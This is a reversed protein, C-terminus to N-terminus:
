TFRSLRFRSIDHATAGETALDALIEGIVPAFKFGHGSCPSAIVVSPADPLRDIIFHGDPTMTYLCTKAKLLPGNASPLHQALAARILSEDKASISRDYDNPNVIEDDHHHKAVKIGGGYFPFGYHMGHESELLFVPFAGAAFLEPATPAFWGMVQRTTRLPLHHAPLLSRTWPGATVIAAGADITDTGTIVRVSSQTPHIARVNAGIHIDAGHQQALAQMAEVSPEAELFGGDPQVVGVYNAPLRFAPYRRMLSDATLLEHAIGHMRSADLTGTVLADDRTGIEAIGTVHLLPRGAARELERWLDYATRLLPVYSPHEFYSLRIIRTESHSSGRDHGPAHRDLGLVRVGRHALTYLAASGMVGLGCVVVDYRAM